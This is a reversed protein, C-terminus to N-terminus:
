QSEDEFYKKTYEEKTIKIGNREWRAFADRAERPLDAFTKGGKKNGSQSSEVSPATNRKPNIFKSPFEKKVKETVKELLESFPIEPNQADIYEGIKDAYLRMSSDKEYWDNRPLWQVFEPRPPAEQPVDKVKPVVTAAAKEHLEAIQNDIEVFAERDGNAVAEIQQAKLENFAKQYSRQEVKSHYDSFEKLTQKLAEIEKDQKVIKSRLIPVYNEGREVFTKADVWKDPDGKFQEKPVHGMKRAKEEIESEHSEVNSDSSEGSEHDQSTENAVESSSEKEKDEAPM